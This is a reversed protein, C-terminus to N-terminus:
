EEFLNNSVDLTIDAFDEGDDLNVLRRVDHVTRGKPVVLTFGIEGDLDDTGESTGEFLKANGDVRVDDNNERTARLSLETRCEGGWKLVQFMLEQTNQDFLVIERTQSGHGHEDAFIDEDDTGDISATALVKRLTAM